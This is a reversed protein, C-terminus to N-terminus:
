PNSTLLRNYYIARERAKEAFDERVSAYLLDRSVNILCPGKANATLVAEIDGGQAGIGPILFIRDNFETRLDSIEGPHTAGVVYGLSGASAWKSTEAFIRKYLPKGACNLRQFDNSGSNSTLGLIFVSKDKWNLFPAVSDYGMLPNVTACDAGFYDFCAEAYAKSTNGIDGRKADAIKFIHAPIYDFTKKLIEFGESGFVEFFAFNLKYACVLDKTADIIEALFQYVSQPRKPFNSPMKDLAPDLGACLLAGSNSQSYHLKDFAAM